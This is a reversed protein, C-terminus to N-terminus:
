AVGRAQNVKSVAKVQDKHSRTEEWVSAFLLVKRLTTYSEEQKSHNLSMSLM